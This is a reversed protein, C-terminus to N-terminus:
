VKRIDNLNLQLFIENWRDLLPTWLEVLQQLDRRTTEEQLKGFVTEEFGGLRAMWAHNTGKSAALVVKYINQLAWNHYPQLSAKYAVSAARSADAGGLLERFMCYQFHLSRRIWLCGMACSDESLRVLKDGDYNHVGMSKEAALISRMSTVKQQLLAAKAKQINTNMDQAARQQGVNVMDIAFLKCASLLKEVDIDNDFCVNTFHVLLNGVRTTTPEENFLFALGLSDPKRDTASQRNRIQHRRAFGRSRSATTFSCLRDVLWLTACLGLRCAHSTRRRVM